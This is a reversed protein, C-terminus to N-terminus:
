GSHMCCTVTCMTVFPVQAVAEVRLRGRTGSQRRAGEGAESVIDRELQAGAEEAVAARDEHWRRVLEQAYRLCLTLGRPIPAHCGLVRTAYM